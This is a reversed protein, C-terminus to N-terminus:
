GGTCKKKVDDFLKDPLQALIKKKAEQYKKACEESLQPEIEAFDDKAAQELDEVDKDVRAQGGRGAYTRGKKHIGKPIAVTLADMQIGTEICAIETDDLGDYYGPKKKAAVLMSSTAPM